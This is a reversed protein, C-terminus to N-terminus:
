INKEFTADFHKAYVQISGKSLLVVNTGNTLSCLKLEPVSTELSREQCFTGINMEERVKSHMVVNRGNSLSCPKFEM